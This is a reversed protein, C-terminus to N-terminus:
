PRFAWTYKVLLRRDTNGLVASELGFRDTLDRAEDLVVWFDRGEAFRYRVRLNTSMADTAASYQVFAEASLKPDLAARVRLLALDADVQQDRAPFWLRQLNYGAAVSLHRSVTIQPEL